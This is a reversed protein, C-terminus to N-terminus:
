RPLPDGVCRAARANGNARKVNATHHGSSCIAQSHLVVTGDCFSIELRHVVELTNMDRSPKSITLMEMLLHYRIRPTRPTYCYPLHIHRHLLQHHTAGQAQTSHILLSFFLIWTVRWMSGNWSDGFM